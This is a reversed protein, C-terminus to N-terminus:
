LFSYNNADFISSVNLNHNTERKPRFSPLIWDLTKSAPLHTAFRWDALVVSM